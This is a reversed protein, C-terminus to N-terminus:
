VKLEPELTSYMARIVTGFLGEADFDANGGLVRVPAAGTKPRVETVHCSACNLGLSPLGGLHAVPARSVGIPLGAGPDPILGLHSLDPTPFLEPYTGAWAALLREPIVETSMSGHLFFALDDESWGPVQARDIGAPVRPESTAPEATALLSLAILSAGLSPKRM